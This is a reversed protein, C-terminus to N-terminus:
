AISVNGFRHGVWLTGDWILFLYWNNNLVVTTKTTTAGSKILSTLANPIGSKVTLNDTTLNLIEVIMGITKTEPLYVDGNQGGYAYVTTVDPNNEMLYNSADSPRISIIKHVHNEFQSITHNRHETWSIHPMKSFHTERTFQYYCTYKIM